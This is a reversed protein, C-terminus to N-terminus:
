KETIQEEEKELAIKDAIRFFPYYTLLSMLIQLGNLCAGRWGAHLFGSIIPPTTWPITVGNTLPVLGVAMAIYAIIGLVIPALIFPVILLPNMVVPIAFIIPENISFMQPIVSLKGLAKFKASRSAFLLLLCLGITAGSGGVKVFKFYFQFNVINPLVHGSAFATANESTLTMWIPQLVSSVINGGNIGFLWMVSELFSTILLAPFTAGLKVLPIQFITSIFYQLNDFSTAQFGIRITNFILIVIIVPIVNAFSKSVNPPVSKPM